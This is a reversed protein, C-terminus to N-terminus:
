VYDFDDPGKFWTNRGAHFIFSLVAIIL